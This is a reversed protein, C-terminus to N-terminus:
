IKKKEGKILGGLHEIPICSGVGKKLIVMNITILIIDKRKRKQIRRRQLPHLLKKNEKISPNTTREITGEV